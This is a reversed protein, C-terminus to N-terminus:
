EIDEVIPEEKKKKGKQLLRAIFAKEEATLEPREKPKAEYFTVDWDAQLVAHEECYFMPDGFASTYQVAEVKKKCDTGFCGQSGGCSVGKPAESHDRLVRLKTWPRGNAWAARCEGVVESPLTPPYVPEWKSEKSDPVEEPVEATEEM